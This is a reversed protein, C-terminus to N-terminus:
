CILWRRVGVDYKMYSMSSFYADSPWLTKRGSRMLFHIFFRVESVFVRVSSFMDFIRYQQLNGSHILFVVM